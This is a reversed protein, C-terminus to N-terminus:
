LEGRVAALAARLTLPDLMEISGLEVFEGYAREYMTAATADDGAAMATLGVHTVGEAGVLGLSAREEANLADIEALAALSRKLASDAAPTLRLLTAALLRFGMADRPRANSSGTRIGAIARGFLVLGHLRTSRDLNALQGLVIVLIPHHKVDAYGVGALAARIREPEDTILLGRELVLDTAADFDRLAVAIRLAEHARERRLRPDALATRLATEREEPPLEAGLPELVRAAFATVDLRGDHPLLLGDHQARALEAAEIGLERALDEDVSRVVALRALTSRYPSGAAAPHGAGGPDALGELGELGELLRHRFREFHRSRDGDVHDRVAVALRGSAAAAGPVREPDRTLAAIEADDLLLEDPRIVRVTQSTAAALASASVATRTLLILRAAPARDLAAGLAGLEVPALREAGDVVVVPGSPDAILALAVDLTSAGASATDRPDPATRRGSPREGAPGDASLWAISSSTRRAWQAALTSKGSGAPGIVVLADWPEDLRADLRARAITGAPIRPPPFRDPEDDVRSM